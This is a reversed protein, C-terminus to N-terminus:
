RGSTRRACGSRTPWAGGAAGARAGHAGRAVATIADCLERADADKTLYGAAGDALAAYVEGPEPRAAIMVVRTGLGDRAVANLVQEGSLGDLTRGISAGRRAAGRRIADLAERGDGAAAVLELEPRERIARAM